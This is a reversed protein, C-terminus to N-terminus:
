ARATNLVADLTLTDKELLKRRVDHSYCKSIIQDRIREHAADGFECTSAGQRLSFVFEDMTEERTQTLQYFKYREFHVNAKPVFYNDLLAVTADFNNKDNSEDALTYYIQQM